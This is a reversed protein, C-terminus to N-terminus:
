WHKTFDTDKTAWIYKAPPGESVAGPAGALAEFHREGCYIKAGETGRLDMSELSGKTEVVFYLREGAETDVLVAWDPNYTGLPTPIKFWGPLKAFLKVADAGQLFEAFRREIGASDYVIHEFPAKTSEVTNEGIYATLEQEEFLSVAYYDSDGLREYQIGEILAQRRQANILDATAKIVLQPAMRFLYLQGSETLIRAISRRTLGTADQLETLIDPLPVGDASLNSPSGVM